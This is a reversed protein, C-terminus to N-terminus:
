KLLQTVKQIFADYNDSYDYLIDKIDKIFNTFDTNRYRLNDLISDLLGSLDDSWNNHKRSFQSLEYDIIVPVGDKRIIINNTHLDGHYFGIKKYADYMAIFIQYLIKKISNESLEDEIILFGLSEGEIYEYIVYDCIKHSTIDYCSSGISVGFVNAFNSSQLRSIGYIGVYAENLLWKNIKGDPRGSVKLIYKDVGKLLLVYTKISDEDLESPLSGEQLIDYMAADLNPIKISHSKLVTILDRESINM